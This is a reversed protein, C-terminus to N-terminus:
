IIKEMEIGLRLADAVISFAPISEKEKEIENRVGNILRLADAVKLSDRGKINIDFLLSAANDIANIMEQKTM